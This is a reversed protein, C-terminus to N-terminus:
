RGGRVFKMFREKVEPPKVAPRALKDGGRMKVPVYAFVAGSLKGRSVKESWRRAGEELKAPTAAKFVAGYGAAAALAPYDVGPSVTAQGGTSEHAGNDFLAHFFARPKYAANVCLSGMRMLLSGDGDLVVIKKEPRALALGLAISSVCGLSGVMYFNNAADGLEFLERGTFGTTALYLADEGAGAKLAGLMEARCFLSERPKAKKEGSLAVNSFTGKKVIFFFPRGSKFMKEAEGIQKEAEAQEQSLVAYDIKMTELMKDTIIGMLEHQPEDGLGPEGRLSVFGLVPISFVANLSTLPSVANGLGSNQMLLVPKKGGLYAGACVAAADGESAAMVFAAENLAYNILDKLFSCPVGAYFDFGRARLAEGFQRTDLM